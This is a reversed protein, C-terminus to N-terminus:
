GGLDNILEGFVVCFGPMSAGFLTAWFFGIYMLAKDGGDAFRTFMECM